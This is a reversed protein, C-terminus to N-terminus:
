FSANTYSLHLEYGMYFCTPNGDLRAVLLNSAVRTEYDVVVLVFNHSSVLFSPLFCVSKLVLSM